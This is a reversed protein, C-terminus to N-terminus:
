SLGSVQLSTNVLTLQTELEAIEGNLTDIERDLDGTGASSAIQARAQVYNDRRERAEVLVQEIQATNERVLKAETRAQELTIQKSDIRSKLDEIRRRDNEAVRQSSEVLRELKENEARVDATMARVAGLENEAAQTRKATVYGDVGGYVAGAAGGVGCGVAADKGEGTLSYVLIAGLACGIAGNVLAGEFVNQTVFSASQERLAIEDPTLGATDSPSSPSTACAGALASLALAAGRRLLRMRVSPM